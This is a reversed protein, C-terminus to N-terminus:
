KSIRLQTFAVIRYENQKSIFISFLSKRTREILNRFHAKAQSLSVRLLDAVIKVNNM